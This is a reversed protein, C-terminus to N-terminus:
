KEGTYDILDAVLGTWGTQHAAGCGAGNDGNFYEYFLYYPKFHPDDNFKPYKADFVPIQKKTEDYKFISILRESLLKAATKISIINGSNNPFEVEYDDGYYEYFKQLSDIILFNLPFWIPGRWNSNGGMISLDSEAPTYQVTLHEGNLNFQFPEKEYVKSMSRIGYDSLFEKEDFMRDLLKKM